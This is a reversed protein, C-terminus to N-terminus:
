LAGGWRPYSGGVGPIRGRVRSPGSERACLGIARCYWVEARGREGARRSVRGALNALRPNEPDLASAAEAFQMATEVHGSKEAWLTMRKCATVWEATSPASRRDFLRDFAVLAKELDADASEVYSRLSRGGRGGGGSPFLGQQDDSSEAWIRIRSLATWVAFGVDPDGYDTFVRLANLRWNPAVWTYCRKKAFAKDVGM